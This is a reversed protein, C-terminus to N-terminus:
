RVIVAMGDAPNRGWFVTGNQPPYVVTTGAKQYANADVRDTDGAWDPVKNSACWIAIRGGGGYGNDGAYNPSAKNNATASIYATDAGKLRKCSLYVTGGAGCGYDESNLLPNYSDALLSGALNMTGAATISIVGGGSSFLGGSGPQCPREESDYTTYAPQRSGGGLGGHGSGYGGFVPKAPGYAPQNYDYHAFKWGAGRADVIADAALVYSGVGFVVIAGNTPDCKVYTVANREMRWRGGVKVTAGDAGDLGNTPAAVALFEGGRKRNTAEGTMNAQVLDGGVALSGGKVALRANAVTVGGAVRTTCGVLELGYPAFAGDPAGGLTVGGGFTVAKGVLRFTGNSFVADGPVDLADLPEGGEWTGAFPCDGTAAFAELFRNDTFWLTGCTGAYRSYQLDGVDHYLGGRALFRIGCAAQEAADYHVAIRGGGGGGSMTSGATSHISQEPIDCSASVVGAGTIKSCTVLVGGGSGYSCNSANKVCATTAADASIRGDVRVEGTFDLRIAGGGARVDTGGGSGPQEPWEASGYTRPAIEFFKSQAGRCLRRDPWMYGQEGGYSGGFPCADRHNAADYFTPTVGVWAPGNLGAYGAGDASIAGGAEVTLTRGVIWVRNSPADDTFAGAARIVAGSRVTVADARIATTWNRTELTVGEGLELAALEATPMDLTVTAASSLVVTDGTDPVAGGGWNAADAWNGSSVGEKWVCTTPEHYAEAFTAVLTREGSVPVEIEATTVDALGATDGAWGAFKWDADPVARVAVTRGDSGWNTVCLTAAGDDVAVAGHAPASVVLAHQVDFLWEAACNASVTFDFAAASDEHLVEGGSTIRCSTLATRTLGNDIAWVGDPYEVLSDAITFRHVAGPEVNRAGYGPEPAGYAAPSGSTRVVGNFFRKRDVKHNQAIEAPSLKRNYIRISHIRGQFGKATQGNGVNDSGILCHTLPKDPSPAASKIDVGGVSEGRYYGDARTYAADCTVSVAIEGESTYHGAAYGPQCDDHLGLPIQGGTGAGGRGNMFFIGRWLGLSIDVPARDSDDSFFSFFGLSAHVSPTSVTGNDTAAFEITWDSGLIAKLQDSVPLRLQCCTNGDTWEPGFDTWVPVSIYSQSRVADSGYGTLDKWVTAEPNHCRVGSVIDNDIGDFQLVLGTKVYSDSTYVDPNFTANITRSEAVTVTIEAAFVDDIGAVDGTWGGFAYKDGAKARLTVTRGDAGWNLASTVEEGGDVSVTGSGAAIVALAHEARFSWKAETNASIRCAFSTEGGEHLLEGDATTVACNTPFARELEGNPIAFRGDPYEVLSGEISFAQETGPTVNNLGYAPVPSGYAAAASKVRVVGNYYRAVDVARNAAIEEPSLLRNYLRIAHIRGKFGKGLTQGNQYAGIWGSTIEGPLTFDYAREGCLTGRYYGVYKGNEPDFQATISFEGDRTLTTAYSGQIKAGEGLGLRFDGGWGSGGTLNAFFIGRWISLAMPSASYSAGQRAPAVPNLVFLTEQEAPVTGNDTAVIELTMPGGAAAKLEDSATFYLANAVAPDRWEPGFATWAPVAVGNAFADSGYGTLDKWTTAADDHGAGTNNIGDFHLVLGSQAYDTTDYSSKQFQATLTRARDATFTLVPNSLGALGETDGTWRAFVRGGAPVATLTVTEGADTWNTVCAAATGDGFRVEGGADATAAIRWQEGSFTWTATPAVFGSEVPLAFDFSPTTYTALVSGCDTVECKAFSIRRGEALKVGETGDDFMETTLAFPTTGSLSLTQKGYAPTVTGLEAPSGAIVLDASTPPTVTGDAVFPNWNAAPVTLFQHGVFDWFGAVGEHTCPLLYALLADDAGKLELEYWITTRNWYVGNNWGGGFSFTFESASSVDTFVCECESGDLAHPKLWTKKAYTVGSDGNGFSIFPARCGTTDSASFVMPYANGTEAAGYAWRAHIYKVDCWRVTPINCLNLPTGATVPITVSEVPVYGQPLVAAFAASVSLCAVALTAVFSAIRKSM